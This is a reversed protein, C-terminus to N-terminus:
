TRRPDLGATGRSPQGTARGDERDRSLLEHFMRALPMPCPAYPLLIIFEDGAYRVPLGAEGAVERLLTAMWILAQDGTEHGHTDNIQKFYDIDLMILSVPHNELSDWPIKYEFYNLLFRRNYIGTLEDEFILRSPDKGVNQLFYLLDQYAM